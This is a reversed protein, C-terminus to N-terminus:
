AVKQLGQVAQAEFLGVDFVDGVDGVGQVQQSLVAAVQQLDCLCLHEVPFRRGLGLLRIVASGQRRDVM